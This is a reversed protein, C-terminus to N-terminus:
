CKKMILAQDVKIPSKWLFIWRPPKNSFAPIVDFEVYATQNKKGTKGIDNWTIENETEPFDGV